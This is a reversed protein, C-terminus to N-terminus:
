QDSNFVERAIEIIRERLQIASTAMYPRSEMGETFYFKGDDGPYIWGIRGDKTEFIYDGSNYEWSIGDPIDYAYPESQGVSGTGFEVFSCHDSSVFVCRANENDSTDSSLGSALEGAGIGYSSLNEQVIEIGEEVLRDLFLQNKEKLSDRYETIKKVARDIEKSSLGFSIKM